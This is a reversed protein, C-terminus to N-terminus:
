SERLFATLVSIEDGHSPIEQGQSQDLIVGVSVGRKYANMLAQAIPQSTLARAQVHVTETAQRLTAVILDTCGGGPSFCVDADVAPQVPRPLSGGSTGARCAGLSMALTAALIAMGTRRGLITM